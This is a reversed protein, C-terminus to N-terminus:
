EAGEKNQEHFRFGGIWNNCEFTGPEHPCVSEAKGEKSAKFGEDYEDTMPDVADEDFEHVLEADEVRNEEPSESADPEDSEPEAAEEEAPAEGKLRQALTAKPKEQEPTVDRLTPEQEQMIREVDETSMPLLKSLARIVTKKAMEPYWQQWIGTPGDGRQNASAKRRKEIEEISMPEMLTTGDTMKAVAYAGKINGTRSLPDFEHEFQREGGEVWVRFGENEYVVDAWLAKIKGSNRAVKILGAVMPMAQAQGKFPVIAAERGDPVLGAAALTRIAKFVSARDCGLIKPNDQVAVVAANRFASYPVTSPLMDLEGSEHMTKLQGKFQVLPHVQKTETM